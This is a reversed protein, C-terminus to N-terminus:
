QTASASATIIPTASPTAFVITDVIEDFLTDDNAFDASVGTPTFHNLELSLSPTVEIMIGRMQTFGFGEATTGGFAGSFETANHGNVTTFKSTFVTGGVDSIASGRSDALLQGVGRPAITFRTGGPLNTGQSECTTTDCIPAPIDAPLIYTIGDIPQKTTGSVVQYPRWNAYPDVPTPTPTLVPTAVVAQQQPTVGGLGSPFYQRAFSSLWVGVGFLGVFLTLLGFTSWFSTHPVGQPQPPVMPIEPTEEVPLPPPPVQGEPIPVSPDPM